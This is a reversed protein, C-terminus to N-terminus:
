QVPDPIEVDEIKVEYPTTATGSYTTNAVVVYAKSGVPLHETITRVGDPVNRCANDVIDTPQDLYVKYQIGNGSASIRINSTTGEVFTIEVVNSQLPLLSVTQSRQPPYTITHELQIEGTDEDHAVAAGQLQCPPERLWSGLLDPDDFSGLNFDIDDELMVQNKVWRWYETGLSSNLHQVIANHVSAATLGVTVLPRLDGLVFFDRQGLYAWFDQARYPDYTANAPMIFSSDIRRVPRPTPWNRIISPPTPPSVLSTASAGVAEAVGESIWGQDIGDKFDGVVAQYKFMHAHFLEHSVASDFAEDSFQDPNICIEMSEKIPTYLALGGECPVLSPRVTINRFPTTGTVEWHPYPLWDIGWTFHELAPDLFGENKFLAYASELQLLARQKTDECAANHCTVDFLSDSDSETATAEAVPTPDEIFEPHEILGITMGERVLLSITVIYLQNEPDYDGPAYQWADLEADTSLQYKPDISLVAELRSPDASEPVPLAVIFPTEGPASTTQSAGVNYYTGLVQEDDILPAAPTDVPHIWVPLPQLFEGDSTGLVVGSEHVFAQDGSLEGNAEYAPEDDTDDIPTTDSLAYWYTGGRYSEEGMAGIAIGTTDMAMTSGFQNDSFGQPTLVDTAQWVEANDREFVHVAGGNGSAGVLLTNDQLVVSRGFYDLAAVSDPVLETSLTWIDADVPDQQYVYVAGVLIQGDDGEAADASIVITNTGIAVASGFRDHDTQSDERRCRDAEIRADTDTDPNSFFEIITQGGVCDDSGPAILRTVYDWQDPDTESRRFLYAAGDNENVASVDAREAGILLHDGDMALANGFAELNGGDGVVSDYLTTVEGWNNDGGRHREFLTVKGNATTQMDAGVALLDGAIAASIGFHGNFGVSVDTLKKVQHWSHDLANREFIYVAGEQFENITEFYAGVVISDGQFALSMAVSDYGGDDPLLITQEVWHDNNEGREFLYVAGSNEIDNIDAWPAAVVLTDGDLALAAGFNDGENAVVPTLRTATWESGPMEQASTPQIACLSFVLALASWPTILKVYVFKGCQIIRNRMM